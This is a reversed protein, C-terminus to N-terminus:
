WYGSASSAFGEPCLHSGDVEPLRFTVPLLSRVQLSLDIVKKGRFFQDLPVQREGDKGGIIVVAGLAMLFMVLDAVPSANGVNGGVTAANRIHPAGFAELFAM